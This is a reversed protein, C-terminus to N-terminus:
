NMEDIEPRNPDLLLLEAEDIQDIKAIQNHNIASFSTATENCILIYQEDFDCLIGECIMPMDIINGHEDQTAHNITLVVVVVRDLFREFITNMKKSSTSNKPM